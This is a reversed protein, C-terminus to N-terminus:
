VKLWEALPNGQRRWEAGRGWQPAHALGDLALRLLHLEHAAQPELQAASSSASSSSFAEGDSGGSSTAESGHGWGGGNDGQGGGLGQTHQPGLAPAGAAGAPAYSPFDRPLAGPGRARWAEPVRVHSPAAGVLGCLAAMVRGLAATHHHHPPPALAAAARRRAHLARGTAQLAGCM